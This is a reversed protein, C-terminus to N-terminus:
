PSEPTGQGWGERRVEFLLAEGSRGVQSMGLRELVRQSAPNDPMCRAVVRRVGGRRVGPLRLGRPGDREFAHSILVRTAETAIGMERWGPLVGYGVEVTGSGDPPGHFGTEGVLTPAPEGGSADAPFLILRTPGAPSREEHGQSIMPLMRAFDAMPWLQPVRAGYLRALSWEFGERDELALRALRPTLGVLLLRATRLPAEPDQSKRDAARL